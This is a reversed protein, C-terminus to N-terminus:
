SRSNEAVIMLAVIHKVYSATMLSLQQLVKELNEQTQPLQSVFRSLCASWLM